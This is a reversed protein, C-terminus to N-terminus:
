LRNRTICRYRCMGKSKVWIRLHNFVVRVDERRVAAVIERGCQRLALFFEGRARRACNGSATTNNCVVAVRM